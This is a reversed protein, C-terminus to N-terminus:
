IFHLCSLEIWHIYNTPTTIRFKDKRKVISLNLITPDNLRLYMIRLKVYFTFVIPDWLTRVCQIYRGINLSPRFITKNFVSVRLWPVLTNFNHLSPIFRKKRYAKNLCIGLNVSFVNLRKLSISCYSNYGLTPCM